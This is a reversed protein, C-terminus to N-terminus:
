SSEMFWLFSCVFINSDHTAVFLLFVKVFSSLTIIGFAGYSFGYKKKSHIACIDLALRNKTRFDGVRHQNHAFLYSLKKGSFHILKPYRSFNYHQGFIVLLQSFILLAPNLIAEFSPQEVDVIFRFLYTNLPTNFAFFVLFLLSIDQKQIAFIAFARFYAKRFHLYNLNFKFHRSLLIENAQKFLVNLLINFIMSFTIVFCTMLGFSFIPFYFLFGRM